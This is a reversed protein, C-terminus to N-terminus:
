RAVSHTLVTSAIRRHSDTQGGTMNNYQIWIALSITFRREWDLLWMMRTELPRGTNALEVPLGEAAANFVRTTHFIQSKRSCDSNIESVTRPLGTSVHRCVYGCVWMCVYTILHDCYRRRRVVDNAKIFIIVGFVCFTLWSAMVSPRCTICRVCNLM